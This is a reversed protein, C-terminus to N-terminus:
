TRAVAILIGSAVSSAPPTLAFGAAREPHGLVRFEGLCPQYKADNIIRRDEDEEVSNGLWSSYRCDLEDKLM